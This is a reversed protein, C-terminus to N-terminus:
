SRLSKTKMKLTLFYFNSFIPLQWTVDRLFQYNDILMIKRVTFFGIGSILCIKCNLWRPKISESNNEEISSSQSQNTNASEQAENM